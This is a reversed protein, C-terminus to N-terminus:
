LFTKGPTYIFGYRREDTPSTAIVFSSSYERLYHILSPRYNAGVLTDTEFVDKRGCIIRKSTIGVSKSAYNYRRESSQRM